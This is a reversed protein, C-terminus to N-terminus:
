FIQRMRFKDANPRVSFFFKKTCLMAEKLSCKFCNRVTIREKAVDCNFEAKITENVVKYFIYNIVDSIDEEFDKGYGEIWAILREEEIESVNRLIFKEFKELNRDAFYNKLTELFDKYHEIHFILLYPPVTHVELMLHRESKDVFDYCIPCKWKQERIRFFNLIRSNM